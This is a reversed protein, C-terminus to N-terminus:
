PKEAARAPNPDRWFLRRCLVCFIREARGFMCRKGQSAPGKWRKAHHTGTAKASMPGFSIESIAVEDAAIACCLLKV